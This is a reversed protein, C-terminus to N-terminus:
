IQLFQSFESLFLLLIQLISFFVLFKLKQELFISLSM